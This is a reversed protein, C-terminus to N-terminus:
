ITWLIWLSQLIKKYEIYIYIIYLHVIFLTYYIITYLLTHCKTTMKYIITNTSVQISRPPLCLASQLWLWLHRPLQGAAFWKHAHRSELVADVLRARRGFMNINWRFRSVSEAVTRAWAMERICLSIEKLIFFYNIYQTPHQGQLRLQLFFFFDEQKSEGWQPLHLFVSSFGPGTHCQSRQRGQLVAATTLWKCLSDTFPQVNKSLWDAFSRCLPFQRRLLM